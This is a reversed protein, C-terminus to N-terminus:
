QERHKSLIRTARSIAVIQNPSAESGVGHRVILHAIWSRSPQRKQEAKM